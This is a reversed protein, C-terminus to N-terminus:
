GNPEIQVFEVLHEHADSAHADVGGPVNGAVPLYVHFAAGAPSSDVTVFGGAAGVLRRVEFLGLGTGSGAAKTTIFPEFIHRAISPDIGPGTDSVTCVCFATVGGAHPSQTLEGGIMLTGVGEMADRANAGLNMFIHDLEDTSLGVRVAPLNCALQIQVTPGLLAALRPVAGRIYSNVDATLLARPESRGRHAILRAASFASAGDAANRIESLMERHNPDTVEALLLETFGCIVTAYNRYAHALVAAEPLALSM